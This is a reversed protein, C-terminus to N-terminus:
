EWPSDNEGGVARGRAGRRFASSLALVVVGLVLMSVDIGGPTVVV